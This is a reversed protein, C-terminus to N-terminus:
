EVHALPGVWLLTTAAQAAAQQAIAELPEFLASFALILLTAPNKFM